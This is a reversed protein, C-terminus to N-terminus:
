LITTHLCNLTGCVQVSRVVCPMMWSSAWVWLVGRSRMTCNKSSSMQLFPPCCMSHRQVRRAVM